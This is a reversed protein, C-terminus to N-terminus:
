GIVIILTCIFEINIDMVFVIFQQIKRNNTYLNLLDMMLSAQLKEAWIYLEIFPTQINFWVTLQKSFIGFKLFKLAIM